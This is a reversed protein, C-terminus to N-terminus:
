TGHHGGVPATGWIIDNLSGQWHMHPSSSQMGNVMGLAKTCFSQDLLSCPIFLLDPLMKLAGRVAVNQKFGPGHLLLTAPLMQCM